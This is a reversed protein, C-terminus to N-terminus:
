HEVIPESSPQLGGVEIAMLSSQGMINLLVHVRNNPETGAVKAIFGSFPGQTIEAQDGIELQYSQQLVGHNDCRAMLATVINGPVVSPETSLRVLRTVGRTNNIQAWPGKEPDLQIFLYGPFLPRVQQKFAEGKRMTREQLPLFTTFSQNELNRVAVQVANPKCQLLYWPLNKATTILKRNIM